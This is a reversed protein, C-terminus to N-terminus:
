KEFHNGPLHYQSEGEEVIGVSKLSHRIWLNKAVTLKIGLIESCYIGSKSVKKSLKLLNDKTFLSFRKM